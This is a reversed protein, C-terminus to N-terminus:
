ENRLLRSGVPHAYAAHIEAHSFGSRKLILVQMLRQLANPGYLRYGSESHACPKLLGRQEYLRLAKASVGSREAIQGIRLYPKAIATTTSQGAESNHPTKSM